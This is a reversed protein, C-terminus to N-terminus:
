ITELSSHVVEDAKYCYILDGEFTGINLKLGQLVLLLIVYFTISPFLAYCSCVCFSHKSFSLSMRICVVNVAVYTYLNILETRVEEMRGSQPDLLWM